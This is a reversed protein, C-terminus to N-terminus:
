LSVQLYYYPDDELILINYMSALKYIERKRELSASSGSPNSGIPVTYLIKPITAADSWASLTNELSSPIIGNADTAIDSYRMLGSQSFHAHALHVIAISIM